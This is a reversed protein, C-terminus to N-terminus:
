VELAQLVADCIFIRDYRGELRQRLVGLEVLKKIGENAAQYSVGHREAAYTAALMPYGILDQAIAVAASNQRLHRVRAQFQERLGALRMARAATELSEAHVAACILSVWDDWRGTLSVNLLGNQYEERNRELWSSINLIPFRLEGAIVLQLLAILRGLRGNGDTFPHLAEFQYHALAMTVLSPISSPKRVWQEWQTLGDRLLDGPLPPVFRAHEVRDRGVGSFVQTRRISGADPGDSRAAVTGGGAAFGEVVPRHRGPFERHAGGCGVASDDVRHCSAVSWSRYGISVTRNRSVGPFRGCHSSCLSFM